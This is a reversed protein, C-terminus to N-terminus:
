KEFMHPFFRPAEQRGYERIQNRVKIIEKKNPVLSQLQRWSMDWIRTEPNALVVGVQRHYEALYDAVSQDLDAHALWEYVFPIHRNQEMDKRCLDNGHQEVLAPGHLCLRNTHNFGHIDERYSAICNSAVFTHFATTNRFQIWDPESTIPNSPYKDKLYFSLKLEKQLFVYCLSDLAEKIQTMNYVRQPNQIDVPLNAVVTGVDELTMNSRNIVLFLDDKNTKFDTPNRESRVGATRIMPAPNEVPSRKPQPLMWRDTQIPWITFQGGDLLKGVFPLTMGKDSRSFFACTCPFNSKLGFESSSFTVSSHLEFKPHFVKNFKPYVRIIKNKIYSVIHYPKGIADGIEMCKLLFLCAMEQAQYKHFMPKSKWDLTNNGLKSTNGAGKWPPNMVFLIEKDPASLKELADVPFDNLELQLFDAAFKVSGPNINNALMYDVDSQELTSQVLDPLELNATLNGGGAAPDYVVFKERWDAGFQQAVLQPWLECLHFPTWFIGDTNRKDDSYNAQFQTETKNKTRM